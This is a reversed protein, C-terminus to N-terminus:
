AARKRGIFYLDGVVPDATAKVVDIDASEAWQIIDAVSVNRYFEGARLPGGDAASHPERGEGAMTAIFVGGPALVSGVQRVIAEAAPTHELVECCIVTAPAFPPQYAAADTVLDVDQGSCVDVGLYVPAHRFLGRVTGNINRSGIEYVPGEATYEAAAQAVFQYAQAHM